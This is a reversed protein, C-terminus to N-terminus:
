PKGGQSDASPEAPSATISNGSSAPESVFDEGGVDSEASVSPPGASVNEAGEMGPVSLSGLVGTFRSSAGLANAATQRFGGSSGTGSASPSGTAAGSPRPVSVGAGGGAVRPTPLPPRPSSGGGTPSGGIGSFPLGPGSSGGGLSGLGRAAGGAGAAGGAVAGAGATAAVLGATAMAGLVHGGGFSTGTILGQVIDPVQKSLYACVLGLGVMTWMSVDGGEGYAAMWTDASQMILGVILTLVFLKAGVATAYRAMAIAYERTWSGGGFGMFLVSANIVIYSEIITVGMFAAIFAFCLVVIAGALAVTLATFPNWTEFSMIKSGMEIAFGLMDGPYISSGLGSAEGGAQRFSNIVAEAWDVSHALLMYFFGTVLVFRVLEGVTEGIDAQKFVLPYLSWVLQITALIWFIRLAYDRLRDAWADASDKILTLLSEATATADTLDAAHAAEALFVALGLAAAISLVKCKPLPM